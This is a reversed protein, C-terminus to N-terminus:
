EHAQINKRKRKSDKTIKKTKRFKHGQINKRKRKSNKTIKRTKRVGM